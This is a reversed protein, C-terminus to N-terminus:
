NKALNGGKLPRTNAPLSKKEFLLSNLLNVDGAEGASKIRRELKKRAIAKLCDNIGEDMHEEDIESTISLMTVLRQEEENCTSLLNEISLTKDLGGTISKIKELVGKILPDEVIQPNISEAIIGAHEPFSLAINL